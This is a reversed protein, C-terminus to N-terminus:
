VTHELVEFAEDDTLWGEVWKAQWNASAQNVKPFSKKLKLLLAAPVLMLKPEEGVRGQALAELEAERAPFNAHLLVGSDYEQDLQTAVLDEEYQTHAAHLVQKVKLMNGSPAAHPSISAQLCVWCVPLGVLGRLCAYVALM